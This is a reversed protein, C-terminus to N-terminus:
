INEALFVLWGGHNLLLHRLASEAAKRDEFLGFVTGGSGSMLASRAGASMLEDKVFGIEPHQKLAINELDNHLVDIIEEISNFSNPMNIGIGSKTLGIKLNLERYVDATSVPINPNVLVLWLKPLKIEELREGIGRAIVPREFIFFPVDAGLRVGIEMLQSVSLGLGLMQNLGTLVTAANGSGGGLGAAVPINKKIDIRIRVNVPHLKLIAKAAKYAINGEGSPVSGSSMVDIGKGDEIFLSVEDYLSIRTMISEIDHYGDERKGLVDLRLNVKAPSFLKLSNNM